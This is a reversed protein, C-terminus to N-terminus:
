GKLKLRINLWTILFITLRHKMFFIIFKSYDTIERCQFATTLKCNNLLEKMQLYQKKISNNRIIDFVCNYGTDLLRHCLYNDFDKSKIKKQICFEKIKEYLLIENEFRDIRFRKSLSDINDHFYYYRTSDICSINDVYYLYDFNFILDEGYFINKDFRVKYEDIIEKKYLKNCPGYLLYLYNLKNWIKINLNGFNLHCKEIMQISNLKGINEIGCIALDSKSVNIEKYLEMIYNDPIFDDSDIFAVYKGKSFEIGINRANSSGSNHIYHYKIRTDKNQYKQCILASNDISGDDILILEFNTYTQNLISSICKSLYKESNFIPVIVSILENM